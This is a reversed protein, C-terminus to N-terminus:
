VLIFSYFFTTAVKYNNNVSTSDLELNNDLQNLKNHNNLTNLHCVYGSTRRKNVMKIRLNTKLFSILKNTHLLLLSTNSPHTIDM